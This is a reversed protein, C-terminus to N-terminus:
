EFLLSCRCLVKEGKKAIEIFYTTADIQERSIVITDGFYCESVYAIEFHKLRKERYFDLSFTNMVHEIYKISNFHGNMDIDTYAATFESVVEKKDSLRIRQPKNIPCEKKCIHEVIRGGDISLLDIPKRSELDIIAWVSKAYGLVKDQPSRIVYNRDTFLRYISDVWTDIIFPENQCPMESLDISLRSLVWTYKHENLLSIGFGRDSSHRNSCNLLHNGLVSLLLHGSFDLHFSEAVFPYHGIGDTNCETNM